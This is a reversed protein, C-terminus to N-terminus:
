KEDDECFDRNLFIVNLLKIDIWDNKIVQLFVRILIKSALLSSDSPLESGDPDDSWDSGPVGACFDFEEFHFTM